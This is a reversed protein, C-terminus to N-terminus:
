LLQYSNNMGTTPNSGLSPLLVPAIGCLQMRINPTSSWWINVGWPLVYGMFATAMILYTVFGAYHMFDLKLEVLLPDSGIGVL